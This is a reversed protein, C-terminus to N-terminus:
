SHLGEGDRWANKQDTYELRCVAHPYLGRYQNCLMEFEGSDRWEDKVPPWGEDYDWTEIGADKAYKWWLADCDLHFALTYVSDYKNTQYRYKEGRAIKRYCHYCQHPKRAKRTGESLTEVYSM